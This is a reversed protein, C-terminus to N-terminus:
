KAGHCYGCFGLGASKTNTHCAFCMADDDDHFDGDGMDDAFSSLHTRPDNGRGPTRDMHCLLCTPDDAQTDHCIACNELDRRALTAHRGGGSGVAGALAGWDPGGHWVPRRGGDGEPNHCQACFDGGDLEHCTICDSVKGRADLPHLFRYNLGHVRQLTQGVAGVLEAGFPTEGTAGLAVLETLRAGEHCEQCESVAHCPLCSSDTIRALRGHERDWGLDHSSPVLADREAHHCAECDRPAVVGTHCTMCAEMGPLAGSGPGEMAEVGGHCQTCDLELSELHYRHSFDFDRASAPWEMPVDGEDHCDLCVDSGPMLDDGAATSQRAAGHCDLCELEESLVHHQHSFQPQGLAPLAAWLGLGAVLLVL